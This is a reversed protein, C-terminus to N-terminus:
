MGLDCIGIKRPYGEEHGMYGRAWDYGVAYVVKSGERNFAVSTIAAAGAAGSGGGGDVRPLAKLRQHRALDWISLSGDSGATALISGNRPHFSASNIAYVETM